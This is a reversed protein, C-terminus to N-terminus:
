KLTFFNVKKVKFYRWAAYACLTAATALALAAGVAVPAAEARARAARACAWAPGFEGGRKYMFAQLRM